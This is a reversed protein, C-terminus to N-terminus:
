SGASSQAALANSFLRRLIWWQIVVTVLGPIGILELLQLDRAFAEGKTFDISGSALQGFVEVSALGAVLLAALCVASRRLARAQGGVVLVVGFVIASGVAVIAEIILTLIFEVNLHPGAHLGLNMQVASFVLVAAVASSIATALSLYAFCRARSPSKAM